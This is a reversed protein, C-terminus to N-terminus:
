WLAHCHDSATRGPGDRDGREDGPQRRQEEATAGADLWRGHRPHRVQPQARAGSIRHARAVDTLRVRCKGGRASGGAIRCGSGGRMGGGGPRHMCVVDTECLGASGSGKGSSDRRDVVSTVAKGQPSLRVLWRILAARGSGSGHHTRHLM